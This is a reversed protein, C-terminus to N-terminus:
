RAVRFGIHGTTVHADLALRSSCRYRECWSAHCLYSGGKAVFRAGNLPGKPDKVLRLSHLTTFRDAVREWVNGIMNYLGFDNPPHSSVEETGHLYPVDSEPFPGRWTNALRQGGPNLETGWPFPQQRRGGRAAFEWEAETPLRTGSWQCFALADELAIHTVPHNWIEEVGSGPGKPEAWFAGPVARWWPALRAPPFAEPEALAARFVFSLGNREALTRYGTARIFGAFEANTVSAPAIAFPSLEVPRVPGEGDEPHPGDAAGM